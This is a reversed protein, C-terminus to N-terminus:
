RVSIGVFVHVAVQIAVEVNSDEKLTTTAHFRAVDHSVFVFAVLPGFDVVIHQALYRARAGSVTGIGPVQLFSAIAITRRIGNM